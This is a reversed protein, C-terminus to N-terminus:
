MCTCPRAVASPARTRSTQNRSSRAHVISRSASAAETVAFVFSMQTQVGFLGVPWAM